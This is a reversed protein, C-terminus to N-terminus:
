SHQPPLLKRAQSNSTYLVPEKSHGPAETHQNLERSESEQAAFPSHSQGIRSHRLIRLLTYNQLRQELSLFGLTKLQNNSPSRHTQAM